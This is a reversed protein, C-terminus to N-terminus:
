VLLDDGLNVVREAEADQLLEIGIEFFQARFFYEDLACCLFTPFHVGEILYHHQRRFYHAVLLLHVLQDLKTLPVM